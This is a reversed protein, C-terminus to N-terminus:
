PRDTLRDLIAVAEAAKKVRTAKWSPGATGRHLDVLYAGESRPATHEETAVLWADAFARMTPAVGDTWFDRLVLRAIMGTRFAGDTLREMTEVFRPNHKEYQGYRVRTRATLGAPLPGDAIVDRRYVTPGLVEGTTAFTLIRRLVVDKRERDGTRKLAGDPKELHIYMPLRHTRCFDKMEQLNLYQILAELHERDRKSLRRAM